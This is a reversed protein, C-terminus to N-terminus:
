GNINKMARMYLVRYHQALYDKYDEIKDGQLMDESIEFFADAMRDLLSSFERSAKFIRLDINNDCQELEVNADLDSHPNDKLEKLLKTKEYLHYLFETLEEQVYFWERSLLISSILKGDLPHSGWEYQGDAHLEEIVKETLGTFKVVAQTEANPTKVDSLGLLWDAAVNCTTCIKKLEEFGPLRLGNYYQALTNRVMGLRKAMEEQTEGDLMLSRFRHFFTMDRPEQKM